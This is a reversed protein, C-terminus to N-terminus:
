FGPKDQTTRNLTLFLAEFFSFYGQVFWWDPLEFKFGMKKVICKFSTKLM